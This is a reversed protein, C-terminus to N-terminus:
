LYNLEKLALTLDTEYGGNAAKLIGEVVEKGAYSKQSNIYNRFKDDTKKVIFTSNKALFDYLETEDFESDLLEQHYDAFEEEFQISTFDLIIMENSEKNIIEIWSHGVMYDCGCNVCPFSKLSSYRDYEVSLDECLSDEEENDNRYHGRKYYIDYESSLESKEFLYTLIMSVSGCSRPFVVDTRYHYYLIEKVEQIRKESLLM